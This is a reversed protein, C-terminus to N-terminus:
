AYFGAADTDGRSRGEIERTDGTCRLHAVDGVERLGGGTLLGRGAGCTRSAMDGQVEGVDGRCRGQTEGADGRVLYLMGLLISYSGAGSFSGPSGPQSMPGYM